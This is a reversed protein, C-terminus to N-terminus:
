AKTEKLNKLKKIVFELEKSDPFPREAGALTALENAMGRYMEEMTHLIEANLAKPSEGLEEACIPKWESLGREKALSKAKQVAQEWSSGTYYQRLYEKSIQTGDNLLRLEDPGISDVLLFHRNENEGEKFAFEFKGDWLELNMQKFIESLVKAGDLAQKKLLHLEQENLGAVSQAESLSLVRDSPELKTSFEVIPEPLWDGAKLDAPVRLEEAYSANKEIRRLLSSGLPVGFRFIVELPVLGESPRTEYFSYDYRVGDDNKEEKPLTVPVPNVWLNRAVSGPTLRQFEDSVLGRSHSDIGADKLLRFFLDGMIALANGKDELRDPMEGWDFISYRDSFRFFLNGERDPGYIDKVSGRYSLEPWKDNPKASTDAM